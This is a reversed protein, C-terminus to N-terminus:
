GGDGESFWDVSKAPVGVVTANNPVDRVVAAGVGITCGSGIKVGPRVSAGLGILTDHGVRVGGGLTARPAIHVNRGLVCDHEVIAATNIICHEGISARGQVVANAGVFTGAGIKASPSVLATPHRVIAFLGRMEGILRGRTALSGIAIITAPPGDGAVAPGPASSTVPTNSLLATDSLAGLRPVGADIEAAADDDLFGLVRWGSARAAETVVWAHGGGGLILLTGPVASSSSSNVPVM